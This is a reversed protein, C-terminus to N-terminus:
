RKGTCMDCSCSNKQQEKMARLFADKAITVLNRREEATLGCWFQKVPEREEITTTSWIKTHQLQPDNTGM